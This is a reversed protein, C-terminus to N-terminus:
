AKNYKEIAADYQEEDVLEDGQECLEQIIQYSKDDMSM